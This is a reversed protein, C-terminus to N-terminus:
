VYTTIERAGHITAKAYSQIWGKQRVSVTLTDFTVDKSKARTESRM